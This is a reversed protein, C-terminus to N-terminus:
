LVLPLYISKRLAQKRKRTTLHDTMFCVKRVQLASYKVPWNEPLCKAKFHLCPLFSLFPIYMFCSSGELFNCYDFSLPLLTRLHDLNRLTQALLSLSFGVIECRAKQFCLSVYITSQNWWPFLNLLSAPKTSYSPKQNATFNIVLTKLQGKSQNWPAVCLGQSIENKSRVESLGHYLLHWGRIKGCPLNSEWEFVKNM